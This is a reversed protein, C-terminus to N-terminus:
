GSKKYAEMFGDLILEMIRPKKEKVSPRLFPREPMKVTIGKGFANKITGGYEHIRGYKVNTGIQAVVRDKSVTVNENISRRLRGSQVALTAGTTGGVGRPMKPGSLHKSQAEKTALKAGKLLVEKLEKPAIRMWRQIKDQMQEMTYRM